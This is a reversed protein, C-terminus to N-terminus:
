PREGEPLLRYFSGGYPSRRVICHDRRIRDRHPRILERDEADHPPFPHATQDIPFDLHPGVEGECGDHECGGPDAIPCGPGDKPQWNATFADEDYQGAADDEEDDEHTSALSPGTRQAMHLSTWEAFAIDNCDSIPCGPGSVLAAAHSSLVFADEIDTEELDPDVTDDEAPEDDNDCLPLTEGGRDDAEEDCDGDLTDLMAVAIEIFAEVQSRDYQALIRSVAPMPPGARDIKGIEM